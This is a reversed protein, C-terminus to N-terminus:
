LTLWIAKSTLTLHWSPFTYQRVTLCWRQVWAYFAKERSEENEGFRGHKGNKNQLTCPNQKSRPFRQRWAKFSAFRRKLCIVREFPLTCARLQLRYATRRRRQILTMGKYTEMNQSFDTQFLIAETQIYKRVPVAFPAKCCDDICSVECYPCLSSGEVSDSRQEMLRWTATMSHCCSKLRVQLHWPSVKQMLLM